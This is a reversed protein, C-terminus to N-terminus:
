NRSPIWELYNLKNMFIVANRDEDFTFTVTYDENDYVVTEGKVNDFAERKGDNFLVELRFLGKM